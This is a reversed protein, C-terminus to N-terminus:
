EFFQRVAVRFGPLVEPFELADEEALIRVPREADYVQATRTADDLVVVISVGADLYEGVKVMVKPWRDGASRVEVVLEPPVDPYLVPVEGKPLRRYSYFSVDAGRVSDPDRTTIVGSDNCLVHGIDHEKAFSLFIWTAESCIQGHRAGPPTMRVIRGKVLEEPYGPDPRQGFEQATLLTELPTATAM